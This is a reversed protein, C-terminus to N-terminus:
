GPAKALAKECANLALLALAGAAPGAFPIGTGAALAGITTAMGGNIVKLASAVEPVAELEGLFQRFGILGAAFRDAIESVAPATVLSMLREHAGEWRSDDEDTWPM